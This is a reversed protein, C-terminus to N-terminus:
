GRGIALGQLPPVPGAEAAMQGVATSPLKAAFPAIAVSALAARETGDAGRQFLTIERPQLSAPLDFMVAFQGDEGSQSQAVETGDLRLIVQMGPAARGAILAAGDPAIRVVDFEPAASLADVGAAPKDGTLGGAGQDPTGTVASTGISAAAALDPASAAAPPLPAALSAPDASSLENAADTGGGAAPSDGRKLPYTVDWLSLALLVVVAGAAAGLAINASRRMGTKGTM